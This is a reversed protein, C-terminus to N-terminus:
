SISRHCFTTPPFLPHHYFLGAKPAKCFAFSFFSDISFFFVVVDLRGLRRFFFLFTPPPSYFSLPPFDLLLFDHSVYFLNRLLRTPLLPYRASDDVLQKKTLQQRTSRPLLIPRTSSQPLDAVRRRFAPPLISLFSLFSILRRSHSTAMPSIDDEPQNAMRDTGVRGLQVAGVASRRGGRKVGKLALRAGDCGARSGSSRRARGERKQSSRVM